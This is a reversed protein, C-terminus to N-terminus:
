KYPPSSTFFFFFFLSFISIIKIQHAQAGVQSETRTQMEKGGKV